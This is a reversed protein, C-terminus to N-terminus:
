CVSGVISDNSCFKPRDDFRGYISEGLSPPFNKDENPIVAERMAFCCLDEIKGRLGDGVV